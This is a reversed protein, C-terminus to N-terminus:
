WPMWHRGLLHDFLTRFDAQALVHGDTAGVVGCSVCPERGEPITKAGEAVARFLKRSSRMMPANRVAHTSDKASGAADYPAVVYCCPHVDGNANISISSYLYDCGFYGHAAQREQALRRWARTMAPDPRRMAGSDGDEELTARIPPTTIGNEVGFEDVGLSAALARAADIEHRNWDFELYRWYLHPTASGLRRKAEVLLRINQLVLALDGGKRYIEYSAQTAGDISLILSDVGSRVLAEAKAEDMPVSLNTSILVWIDRQKCREILEPLRKNLLPEGWLSLWIRVLTDGYKRLIAEIQPVTMVRMSYGDQRIMHGACLPCSLQCSFCPDIHGVVPLSRMSIVHSLRERENLILNRLKTVRLPALEHALAEVVADPRIIQPSLTGIPVGDAYFGLPLSRLDADAPLALTVDFGCAENLAPDFAVVDRRPLRCAFTYEREAIRTRGIIAADPEADIPSYWGRLVLFGRTGDIALLFYAHDIFGKGEDPRPLRRPRRRADRTATRKVATQSM